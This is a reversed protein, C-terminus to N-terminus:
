AEVRLGLAGWVHLYVKSLMGVSLFKRLFLTVTTVVYRIYRDTSPRAAEAGGQMLWGLLTVAPYSRRLTVLPVAAVWRPM